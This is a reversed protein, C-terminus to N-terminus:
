LNFSSWQCKCVIYCSAVEKKIGTRSTDSKCCKSNSFSFTTEDGLPIKSVQMPPKPLGRDGSNPAPQEVGLANNGKLLIKLSNLFPDNLRRADKGGSPKGFGGFPFHRLVVSFETGLLRQLKLDENTSKLRESRLCAM